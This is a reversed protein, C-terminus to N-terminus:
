HPPNEHSRREKTLRVADSVTESTLLLDLDCYTKTNRPIGPGTRPQRGLPIPPGLHYATCEVHPNCDLAPIVQNYNTVGGQERVIRHVAQLKGDYRFAIFLTKRPNFRTPFVYKHHSRPVDVLPYPNDECIGHKGLPVIWVEDEFGLRVDYVEKLFGDLWRVPSDPPAVQALRHVSERVETWRAVGCWKPLRRAAGPPRNVLVILRRVKITPDSELRKEYKQLQREHPWGGGIKAEFIVKFRGPLYLEIDTFGGDEPEHRQLEIQVADLARKGLHHVGARRLIDKLLPQSQSLCHGLAFTLANEDGGILHYPSSVHQNHLRLTPM